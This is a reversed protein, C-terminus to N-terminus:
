NANISANHKSGIQKIAEFVDLSTWGKESMSVTSEGMAAKEMSRREELSGSVSSMCIKSEYEHEDEIQKFFNSLM